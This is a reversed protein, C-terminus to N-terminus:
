DGGFVSAIKKTEKKCNECLPIHPSFTSPEVHPFTGWNGCVPRPVNLALVVAHRVRKAKSMVIYVHDTM